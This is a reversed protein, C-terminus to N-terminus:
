RRRRPYWNLLRREEATLSEEPLWHTDKFLRFQWELVVDAELSGERIRRELGREWLDKARHEAVLKDVEHRLEADKRSLERRADRAMREAYLGSLWDPMEVTGAKWAKAMSVTLATTEGAERMAQAVEAVRLGLVNSVTVPCLARDPKRNGTM